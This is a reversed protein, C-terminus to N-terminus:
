ELGTKVFIDCSKPFQLVWALYNGVDASLSPVNQIKGDLDSM